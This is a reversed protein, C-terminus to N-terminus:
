TIRLVCPVMKLRRPHKQAYLINDFTFNKKFYIVFFPFVAFLVLTESVDSSFVWQTERFHLIHEEQLLLCMYLTVFMVYQICQISLDKKIYEIDQM